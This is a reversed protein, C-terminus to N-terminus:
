RAVIYQATVRLVAMFAGHLARQAREIEARSVTAGDARHLQAYYGQLTSARTSLLRAQEAVRQMDDSAPGNGSM